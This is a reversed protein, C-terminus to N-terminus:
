RFVTGGDIDIVTGSLYGCAPSATFTVANAIERPHAPRGLPLGAFLAEWGEASGFNSEARGKAVTIARETLTVGPNIGFVRVGHDVSRAGLASTFAMLAANGAGGCIYDFRPMRGGTGIVNVITGAKREVMRGLYLKSLHIYGFVKLAWAAEWQEMSVDLLNGGPIAGANNVLIDVDPFAQFLKEREQPRSLDATFIEYDALNKMKAAAQLEDAYRGVLVVKLGEEAFTEACELGIGKSAGTILVQQGNFGLKM